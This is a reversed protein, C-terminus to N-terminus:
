THRLYVSYMSMVFPVESCLKAVRCRVRVVDQVEAQLQVVEHHHLLHDVKDKRSASQEPAFMGEPSTDIPEGGIIKTSFTTFHCAKGQVEEPEKVEDVLQVANFPVVDVVQNIRTFHATLYEQVGAQVQIWDLDVKLVVSCDHQLFLLKLHQPHTMDIM